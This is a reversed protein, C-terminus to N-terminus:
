SEGISKERSEEKSNPKSKEKSDGDISVSPTSERIPEILLQDFPVMALRKERYSYLNELDEQDFSIQAMHKVESFTNKHVFIDDFPDKENSFVKIKVM